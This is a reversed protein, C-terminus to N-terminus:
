FPSSLLASSPCRATPNQLLFATFSPTEFRPWLVSAQENPRLGMYALIELYHKQAKLRLESVFM